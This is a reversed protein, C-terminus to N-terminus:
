SKDGVGSKNVPIRIVDGSGDEMMRYVTTPGNIQKAVDLAQNLSYWAMAGKRADGWVCTPVSLDHWQLNLLYLGAEDDRIYYIFM